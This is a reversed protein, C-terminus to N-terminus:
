YVYILTPGLTDTIKSLVLYDQETFFQKGDNDSHEMSM